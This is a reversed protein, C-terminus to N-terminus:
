SGHKKMPRVVITLKGDLVELRWELRDGEKLGFQRIIFIPVTTRLSPSGPRARTLVTEHNV